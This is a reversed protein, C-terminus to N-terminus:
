FARGLGSIVDIAPTSLAFVYQLRTHLYRASTAESSKWLRKM